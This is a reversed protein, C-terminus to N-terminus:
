RKVKVRWSVLKSLGYVLKYGAGPSVRVPPNKMRAVKLIAKACTEPPYAAYESNVVCMSRELHPRYATECTKKSYTRGQIFGSVTNGPEITCVKVGFPKLEMRLSTSLSFLAAKCASYMGQFPVPFCASLSGVNIITGSKAERMHPAAHNLVRIVGFLCVNFQQMAEEATTEEIAGAIGSGAVNVILDLRGHKEIVYEVANKVSQEDELTMPLMIYSAGGYEVTEYNARRSTGYVTYGEKALLQATAKGIGSSAGTVLTIKEDKNYM